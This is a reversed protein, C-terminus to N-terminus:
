KKQSAKHLINKEDKSLSDYGGVSIKDLLYDVQEQNPYLDENELQMNAQNGGVTTKYFSKHMTKKKPKGLGNFWDILSELPSTLNWGTRLFKVHLYGFTAAMLNLLGSTPNLFSLLLFALALYKLKIFIRFFSIEYDPLLAVAAFLIAYMGTSSGYLYLDVQPTTKMLNGIYHMVIFALAAFIAGSYYIVLTKRGGLFDSLLSGFWYLALASFLFDIVGHHTFPFFVLTWPHSLFTKANSNLIINQQLFTLYVGPEPMFSVAFDLITKLLFVFLGILIIQMVQNDKRRFANLIDDFVSRM